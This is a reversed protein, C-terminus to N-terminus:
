NWSIWAGKVPEGGLTWRASAWTLRFCCLCEAPTIGEPFGPGLTVRVRTKAQFIDILKAKERSLDLDYQNMPKEQHEFGQM